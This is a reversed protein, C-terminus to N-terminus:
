LFFSSPAYSKDYFEKESPYWIYKKEQTKTTGPVEKMKSIVFQDEAISELSVLGANSDLSKCHKQSEDWSRATDTLLKYCSQQFRIWDKPCALQVPGTATLFETYM